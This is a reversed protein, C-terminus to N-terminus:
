ARTVLEDLSGMWDDGGIIKSDREVGRMRRRAGLGEMEITM